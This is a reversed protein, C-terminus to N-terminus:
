DLGKWYNLLPEKNLQQLGEYNELPEAIIREATMRPNVSSYSDQFVAQLNRRIKQRIPKDATYIDHGQFLIQGNQPRELGLIVKGLTSKGAGSSGLLGLCTGDEISFSIDSLVTKSHDKWNFFTRSGYSHTVEKVQLLSM